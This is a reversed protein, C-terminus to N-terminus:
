RANAALVTLSAPRVEFILPPPLLHEEGDILLRLAAHRAHLEIRAGSLQALAADNASGRAIRLLLRLGDWFTQAREIYACLRGGDLATRGFPHDAAPDLANVTITIARTRLHHSVGDIRVDFRVPRDRWVTRWAARAVGLWSLPGNGRARAAERHHGIKAPAGLMCACAFVHDKILGTDIRREVAHVLAAAAAQLDDVPLGLDRALLNMTGLPIIGM